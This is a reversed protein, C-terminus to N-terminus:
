GQELSEARCLVIEVPPSSGKCKGSSHPAKGQAKGLLNLPNCNNCITPANNFLVYVNRLIFQPM